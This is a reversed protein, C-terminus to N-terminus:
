TNRSLFAALAANLRDPQDLPTFHRSDAITVLQAHPIRAAYSAKYGVPAYDQDAGVILTPCSIDQLRDLVSWGILARYSNLYARRENESWREVMLRRLGAQGPMPFLRESLSKGMPRMGLLAVVLFRRLAELRQTTTRLILEPGSNLVVLRKLLEPTSVAMQFAIMGGMSFGVLNVPALELARVFEATDEAFLAISYRERPKDSRGHGRVDFTVVRYDRSLFVVQKEWDRLSSGLGHILLVPQGQGEIEYHLSVGTSLQIKPM